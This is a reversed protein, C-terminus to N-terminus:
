PLAALSYDDEYFQAVESSIAGAAAAEQLLQKGKPLLLKNKPGLMIYAGKSAMTKAHAVDMNLDILASGIAVPIEALPYAHQRGSVRVALRTDDGEIFVAETSGGVKFSEASDLGQIAGVIADRATKVLGAVELLRGHQTRQLNTKATAQLEALRTEAEGIDLKGLSDRVAVMGAQWKQKDQNTLRADEAPANAQPAPTPPATTPPTMPAPSQPATAPETPTTPVPATPVPAPSNPMTEPMANPLPSPMPGPMTNPITNPMANPMASGSDTADLPVAQIQLPAIGEGPQLLGGFGSDNPKTATQAPQDAPPQALQATTTTPRNGTTQAVTPRQGRSGNMLFMALLGLAILGGVLSAGGIVLSRQQKQRMRKALNSVSASPSAVRGVVPSSPGSLSIGQAGSASSEDTVHSGYVESGSVGNGSVDAESSLATVTAATIASATNINNATNFANTVPAATPMPEGGLLAILRQLDAAAALPDRVESSRLYSSMDFPAHPDGDPLLPDLLSTDWYLQAESTPAVSSSVVQAKDVSVKNPTKSSAAPQAAVQQTVVQQTVVHSETTDSGSAPKTGYVSSWQRDYSVKRTPDLLYKQGLALVKQLRVQEDSPVSQATRQKLSELKAQVRKLATVIPQSDAELPKLGLLQYLNPLRQSMDSM